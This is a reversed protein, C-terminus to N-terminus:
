RVFYPAFVQRVDNLSLADLDWIRSHDDTPHTGVSTFWSDSLADRARNLERLTVPLVSQTQAFTVRIIEGASSVEIRHGREESTNNLVCARGVDDLM